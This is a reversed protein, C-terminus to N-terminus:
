EPLTYFDVETIGNPQMKEAEPSQTDGTGVLGTQTEPTQWTKFMWIHLKLLMALWTQLSVCMKKKHLQELWM